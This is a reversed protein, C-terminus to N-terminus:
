AIVEERKPMSPLAGPRTVAVAAAANAFPIALEIPKGEALMVALAGIFCDGAATTDVAKVPRAPFHTIANDKVLYSGLEGATLIVLGAGCESAFNIMMESGPIVEDVGMLRALETENPVLIDVDQLMEPPFSSMPAPNLITRVKLRRALALARRVTCIPVELQTVLYDSGAIVAEHRDLQDYSLEGNAGIMCVINNQGDDAINIYAAGTSVGTDREVGTADVGAERLSRLLEDGYEDAGVRGIMSVEGGLRAIATAQNAGKGGPNLTQSRGLISEGAQPIHDVRFCVDMNISGLVTIKGMM